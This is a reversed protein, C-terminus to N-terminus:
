VKMCRLKKINEIDLVGGTALKQLSEMGVGSCGGKFYMIGGIVVVAILLLPKRILLGLIMPLLQILGGGPRRGGGTNENENSYNDNSDDVMRIPM